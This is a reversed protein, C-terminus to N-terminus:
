KVVAEYFPGSSGNPSYEFKASISYGQRTPPLDYATSGDPTTMSVGEGSGSFVVTTTSGLITWSLTVKQYYAAHANCIIGGSANGSIPIPVPNTAM